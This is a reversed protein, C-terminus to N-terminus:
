ENPEQYDENAHLVEGGPAIVRGSRVNLVSVGICLDGVAFRSRALATASFRATKVTFRGRSITADLSRAQSEGCRPGVLVIKGFPYQRPAISGEAPGHEVKFMGYSFTGTSHSDDLGYRAALKVRGGRADILVPHTFSRARTLSRWGGGLKVRVSGAAPTLTFQPPKLPPVRRVFTFRFTGVSSKLPGANTQAVSWYTFEDTGIYAPDAQWVGDGASNLKLFGHQPQTAHYRLGRGGELSCRMHVTMREGAQTQGSADDCRFANPETVTVTVTAHNAEEGGAVAWYSFTDTGEFGLMPTYRGHGTQDLSLNGHLPMTAQYSLRGDGADDCALRFELTLGGQVARLTDDCTPSSAAAPAALALAAALACPILATASRIPQVTPGSPRAM